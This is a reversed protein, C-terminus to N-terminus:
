RETHGFPGVIATPRDTCLPGLMKVVTGAREGTEAPDMAALVSIASV